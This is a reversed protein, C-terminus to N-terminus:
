AAEGRKRGSRRFLRWSLEWQGFIGGPRYILVLLIAVAYLVFRGANAFRFIEPLLTLFIAAVVGGTLSRLGGLFVIAVLEASKAWSFMNPEIYAVYHATLAGALGALAASVSFVMQKAGFTDIGTAEAALEDSMLAIARRGYKSLMFNRVLWLVLATLVVMLPLTTKAPIGPLGVAGGTFQVASLFAKIAEGVGMTALAFYEKRLRLTPVGIVVSLLVSVLMATLLGVPFPWGLKATVLGSAYAGAALFAAHGFSVLGAAGILLSLGAVTVVNALAFILLGQYFSNM